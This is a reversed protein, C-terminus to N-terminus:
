RCGTWAPPRIAIKAARWEGGVTCEIRLEGHAGAPNRRIPSFSSTGPSTGRRFLSILTTEPDPCSPDASSIRGSHPSGGDEPASKGPFGAAHQLTGRRIMPRPSIPPLSFPPLPHRANGPNAAHCSSPHTGPYAHLPHAYRARASRGFCNSPVMEYIM